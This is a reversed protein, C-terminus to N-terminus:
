MIQAMKKFYVETHEDLYNQAFEVYKFFEASNATHGSIKRVIQEPVGMRLMNTIATRRMTHTTLHDGITFHQRKVKDKYVVKKIGRKCRYRVMEDKMELVDALDKLKKNLWANTMFPFITKRKKIEYKNIIDIAYDPLKITTHISTKSSTVKM